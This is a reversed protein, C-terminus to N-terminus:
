DQTRDRSSIRTPPEPMTAVHWNFFALLSQYSLRKACRQLIVATVFPRINIRVGDNLDPNWGLPQEHLPKWRVYIDYPKEGDRIAELKKQLNIAAVLRADAGSVGEDREAKQTM